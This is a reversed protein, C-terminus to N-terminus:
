GRMRSAVDKVESVIKPLSENYAQISGRFTDITSSYNAIIEKQEAMLRTTTEM